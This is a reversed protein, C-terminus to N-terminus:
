HYDIKKGDMRKTERRRNIKRARFGIKKINSTKQKMRELKVVSTM